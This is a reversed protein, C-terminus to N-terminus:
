TFFPITMNNHMKSIIINIHATNRSFRDEEPNGVLDSVFWAACSCFIVVPKLNRITFPITIDIFRCFLCQDAVYTQVKAKRM